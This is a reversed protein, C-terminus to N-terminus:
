GKGSLGALRWVEAVQQATRNLNVHASELADELPVAGPVISFVAKLGQERLPELNGVIAGVLAVVPVHQRQARQSIGMLTKGRGTQDDIRGEGTLVLGAGHLHRDMDVADLVIDIGRRLYAGFVGRFAAGLGGAAGSGPFTLVNVGTAESLLQGYHLLNADLREVMDPDAGKQPGFVASAGQDGVLPNDVDCAIDFRAYGLRPDLTSLDICALHTLGGGGPEIAQGAADLLQGGLAQILGAGGDNTASGGLGIIFHTIGRDLAALILEGTGRSTTCWPNRQAPTLLELGAAAATEIVGTRGDGLVGWTAEVTTGLPGTVREMHLSGGTAHVLARTTGEGGDAVPLLVVNDEPFVNLWGAAIVGAAAEASLSEKFSDPAIVVKM